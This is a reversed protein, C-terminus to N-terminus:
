VLVRGNIVEITNKGYRSILEKEHSILAIGKGEAVMGDILSYLHERNKQDLGTTPEDLILFKAGNMLVTCIALRQREGRSLHFITRDKLHFLDFRILLERAKRGVNDCDWGLIGAIFTMEQWVTTAFLQRSPEQFLYGIHEGILGLPWDNALNGFIELKGRQPKLIGCMLKSLTTKGSGNPGSILTVRGMLFELNDFKIEFNSRPYKYRVGKLGVAVTM